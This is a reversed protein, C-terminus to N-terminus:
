LKGSDIISDLSKKIHKFTDSDRSEIYCRILPETGSPRILVWSKDKFIIKVGDILDKKDVSIDFLEDEVEKFYSLVQEKQESPIHKDIRKSFFKGYKGYLSDLHDSLYGRGNAKLYCQIETLMLSALIGDKEPIHGKISVGGSEEGGILVNGELMLRGIHKFGVPTEELGIGHDRCIEDILHTTAISRVAIDGKDAKKNFLLYDLMISIGDNPSIYVGNGDIVGFRDADGDVAIGIDLGQKLIMERFDKLNDESPDPLKGGFLPDDNDNIRIIKKSLDKELIEPLLKNAAGNMTNVAIKIETNKFLEKDLHKLVAKIYNSFDDIRIIKELLVDDNLLERTDYDNIESEDLRELHKEISDTIEKSAPGAYEPIFKIGNYIPPNHSATIMISGNLDLDKVMFATTPTPSPYKSLYAKIGNKSFISAVYLAFRNSIFRTDYGVYIGKKDKKNEKLYRCIALVVFSLNKYTFRDAIIDRWGDTGFRISKDM